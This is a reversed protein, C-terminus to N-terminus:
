RWCPYLASDKADVSLSKHFVLAGVYFILAEECTPNDYVTMWNSLMCGPAYAARMCWGTTGLSARRVAPVERLQSCIQM